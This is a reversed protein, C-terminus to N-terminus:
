LNILTVAEKHTSHYGAPNWMRHHLNSDMFICMPSNRKHSLPLWLELDKLGANTNPPNYVNVLTVSKPDANQITIGVLHKSGGPLQVIAEAPISKHIYVCCKHRDRWSSLTHEYSTIQHWEPHAPPLLTYPNVWPEQLLLIPAVTPTLHLLTLTIEKSLHCNLQLFPIKCPHSVPTAETLPAATIRPSVHDSHFSSPVDPCQSTIPTVLM